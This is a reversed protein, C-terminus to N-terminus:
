RRFLRHEVKLPLDDWAKDGGVATLDLREAVALCLADGLSVGWGKGLGLRRSEAILEAARVADSESTDELRVGMEQIEALLGEATDPYGRELARALVEVANPVPLVAVPLARAIVQYGRERFIWAVVASADLVVKRAKETM